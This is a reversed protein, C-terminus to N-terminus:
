RVREPFDKTSAAAIQAIETAQVQFAEYYGALDEPFRADGFARLEPILQSYYYVASSIALGLDPYHSVDRHNFDLHAVHQDRYNKMQEWYARWIQQDVGIHAFLGTRFIAQDAFVNKWHVQQHEEDDSGFLKCWELVAVDLLNGHMVRWFNLAPEPDAATLARKLAVCRVLNALVQLASTLQEHTAM